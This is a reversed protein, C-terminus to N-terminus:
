DSTETQQGVKNAFQMVNIFIVKGKYNEKFCYSSSWPLNVNAAGHYPLSVVGYNLFFVMKFDFSETEELLHDHCDCCQM